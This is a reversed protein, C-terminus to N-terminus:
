DTAYETTQLIDYIGHDRFIAIQMTNNTAAILEDSSTHKFFSLYNNKYSATWSGPSECYYVGDKDKIGYLKGKYSSITKFIDKSYIEWNSYDSLNTGKKGVRIDSLTSIYIDGAIVASGTINIGWNLSEKFERKKLDLIMMGFPMSMYLYGDAEYISNVSKDGAIVSEKLDSLKYVRDNDTLFDNNSNSYIIGLQKTAM